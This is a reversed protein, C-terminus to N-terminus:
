PHYPNFHDPTRPILHVSRLHLEFPGRQSNGSIALVIGTEQDVTLELERGDDTVAKRTDATRNEYSQPIPRPEPVLTAGCWALAAPLSVLARAEAGTDRPLFEVAESTGHPHFGAQGADAPRIDAAEGSYPPRIDGPDGTYPARRDSAGEGPYVFRTTATSPHRNALNSTHTTHPEPANPQSSVQLSGDPRTYATTTNTELWLLHGEPTHVRVSDPGILLLLRRPAYRLEGTSSVDATVTTDPDITTLSPLGRGMSWDATAM